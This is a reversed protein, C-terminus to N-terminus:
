RPAVPAPRHAEVRPLCGRVVAFGSRQQGPASRASPGNGREHTSVLQKMGSAADYSAVVAPPAGPRPREAPAAVPAPASGRLLEHRRRLADLAKALPLPLLFIPFAAVALYVEVDPMKALWPLVAVWVLAVSRNGSMLGVTIANAGGNRAFLAAGLAQFGANFAFAVGLALAIQDFHRTLHPVMGQMAGIAFVVLGFVSVGTMAQPNAQVFDKAFRRLLAAVIGAGVVVRAVRLMMTAMEIQVHVGGLLLAAPPLVLPSLLSAVVTVTLALAPNLRLMAAMAAASGVPPALMCLLLGTKTGADLPLLALLAWTTLPVGAVIWLLAWALRQPRLLQAQLAAREVKLFAGLSFVFVAAGMLPKAADALTPLCLGMLVCLFLIVPGHRGAFSLLQNMRLRDPSM